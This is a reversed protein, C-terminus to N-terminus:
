CFGTILDPGCAKSVDILNRQVFVQQPLFEVTSLLSLAFELSKKLSDFNSMDEQTFASYFYHNFKDVKAADDTIRSDDATISPIPTRRGKLTNM